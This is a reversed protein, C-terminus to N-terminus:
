PCADKSRRIVVNRWPNWAFYQPTERVFVHAPDSELFEVWPNVLRDIQVAAPRAVAVPMEMTEGAYFVKDCVGSRSCVHDGAEIWDLTPLGPHTDGLDVRAEFAFGPAELTTQLDDEVVEHEVRGPLRFVLDPDPLIEEAFREVVLSYPRGGNRTVFTTCEVRAGRAMGDVADVRLLFYPRPAVDEELIRLVALETDAHLGLADILGGPDSVAFHFYASPAVTGVRFPALADGEGGVAGEAIGLVAAPYFNKKFDSLSQRYEETVDLYPADLNWWPSIVIELPNLYVYSHKPVPHLYASWPTEDVIKTDAEAIRVADRNHMSANYLTRDSVGNGWYIFDNAAVFERALGVRDESEQPWRIRSTFYHRPTGGDPDEEAVHSVIEGEEHAHSVPAPPTILNVADASMNEAAAEVVLFRSHDVEPDHVFVSWEARAGEVLGGSSNYANLVLFYTPEDTELIRLPALRFGAPLVKAEFAAIEEPGRFEFNIFVSNPDGGVDFNMWPVNGRHTVGEAYEVADMAHVLQKLFARSAIVEGSTKELPSKSIPIEVAGDDGTGLSPAPTKATLRNFRTVYEAANDMHVRAHGAFSDRSFSVVGTVARAQRLTAVGSGQADVVGYLAPLGLVFAFSDNGELSSVYPAIAASRLGPDTGSLTDIAARLGPASGVVLRDEALRGVRLSSGKKEYIVNGQYTEHESLESPDFIEDLTGVKLKASLLFGHEARTTQALVITEMTAGVDAGLSHRLLLEVPSRVSPDLSRRDLLEKLASIGAQSFLADVDIALISRTSEPLIMM